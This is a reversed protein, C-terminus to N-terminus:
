LVNRIDNNASKKYLEVQLELQHLSHSVLSNENTHHTQQTQNSSAKWMLSKLKNMQLLVWEVSEPREVAFM